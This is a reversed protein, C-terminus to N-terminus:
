AKKALERLQREIKRLRELIRKSDVVRESM